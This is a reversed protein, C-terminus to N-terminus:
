EYRLASDEVRVREGSDLRVIEMGAKAGIRIGGLDRDAVTPGAHEGTYETGEPITVREM